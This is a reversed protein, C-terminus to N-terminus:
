PPTPLVDSTSAIRKRVPLVERSPRTSSPVAVVSKSGSSTLRFIEMLM